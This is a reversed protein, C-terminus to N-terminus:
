NLLSLRIFVVEFYILSLLVLASRIYIKGQNYIQNIRAFLELYLVESGFFRAHFFIWIKFIESFCIRLHSLKRGKESIVSLYYKKRDFLFHNGKRKKKQNKDFRPYWCILSWIYNKHKSVVQSPWIHSPIIFGNIRRRKHRTQNFRAFGAFQPVRIWSM